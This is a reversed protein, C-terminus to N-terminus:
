NGGLKKLSKKDYKPLPRYLLNGEENTAGCKTIAMAMDHELCITEYIKKAVHCSGYPPKDNKRDCNLCLCEERRLEDMETNQWLQDPQEDRKKHKNVVKEITMKIGRADQM